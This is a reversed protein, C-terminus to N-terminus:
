QCIFPHPYCRKHISLPDFPTPTKHAPSYYSTDDYTHNELYIPSANSAVILQIMMNNINLQMITNPHTGIYSFLQHCLDTTTNTVKRQQPVITCISVHIIINIVCVYYLIVGVSDYVTCSRANDFAPPPPLVTPLKRQTDYYIPACKYM